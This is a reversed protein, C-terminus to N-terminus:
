GVVPLCDLGAKLASACLGQAAARNDIPGVRLRVLPKGPVPDYRPSRGAMAPLRAGIRRWATEAADQGSYTGFQVLWGGASIAPAAGALNLTAAQGPSELRALLMPAMATLDAGPAAIAAQAQRAAACLGAQSRPDAFRNYVQTMHRDLATAGGAKHALTEASYASALPAKHNKLMRNYGAAIAADRCSLAAVNLGARVHWLAELGDASAAAAAPRAPAATPGPDPAPLPAPKPSKACGSLLAITLIAAHLIGRKM